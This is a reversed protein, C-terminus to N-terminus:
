WNECRTAWVRSYSGTVYMVGDKVLPQSEQGRQKEGGLSFAWVPRVEEVTDRNIATLPSYRQAKLGMGYTVVDDTTVHDNQIDKDTVVAHVPTLASACVLMSLALKKIPMNNNM